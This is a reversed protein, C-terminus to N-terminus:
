YYPDTNKVSRIYAENLPLLDIKNNLYGEKIIDFYGKSPRTILKSYSSEMIYIMASVSGIESEIQVNDKVYLRPYGEYIDLIKECGQTINWLVIPVESGKEPTITAVGGGRFELRYDKLIGTCIREAVPCRSGMQLINMNSGYAAYLKKKGM